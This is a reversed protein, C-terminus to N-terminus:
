VVRCHVLDNQSSGSLTKTSRSRELAKLQTERPATSEATRPCKGHIAGQASVQYRWSELRRTPPDQMRLRLPTWCPSGRTGERKERATWGQTTSAIRIESARLVRPVQVVFSEKQIVPRDGALGLCDFQEKISELAEEEVQFRECSSHHNRSARRHLIKSRMIEFAAHTGSAKLSSPARETGLIPAARSSRLTQLARVNTSAM